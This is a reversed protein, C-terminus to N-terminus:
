ADDPEALRELAKEFHAPEDEMPREVKFTAVLRALRALAEAEARAQHRGSM